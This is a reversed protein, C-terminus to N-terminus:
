ELNLSKNKGHLDIKHINTHNQKLGNKVGGNLARQQEM